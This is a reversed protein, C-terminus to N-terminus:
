DGITDPWEMAAVEARIRDSITNIIAPTVGHAALNAATAPFVIIKGGKAIICLNNALCWQDIQEHRWDAFASSAQASCLEARGDRRVDMLIHERIVSALNIPCEPATYDEFDM